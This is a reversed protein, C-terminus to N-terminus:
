EQCRPPADPGADDARRPEFASAPIGAATSAPAADAGLRLDKVGDAARYRVAGLLGDEGFYLEAQFPTGRVVGRRTLKVVRGEEDQEVQRSSEGPCDPFAASTVRLRGADRLRRHRAVADESVAGAQALPKAAAIRARQAGAERKAEVPLPEAGPAAPAAQSPAASAVESASGAEPASESDALGGFARADDREAAKEKAYGHPEQAPAARERLTQEDAPALRDLALAPQQRREPPPAKAVVRKAAESEGKGSAMALKAESGAGGSTAPAPEVAPVPREAAEPAPGRAVLETGDPTAVPGTVHGSLRISLVAVAAIGVATVSAGWVWAPLFPRPRREEAAQRAAALLIGEGRAPAPEHGLASMASRTASMRELEERCSACGELHRRLARAERRGLEGYALDLLQERLIEHSPTPM